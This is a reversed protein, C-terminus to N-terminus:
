RSTARRDAPLCVKPEARVRRDSALCGSAGNPVTVAARGPSHVSISEVGSSTRTTSSSPLTSRTSSVPSTSWAVRVMAAATSRGVVLATSADNSSARDSVGSGIRGPQASASRSVRETSGCWLRVLM